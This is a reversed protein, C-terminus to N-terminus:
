DQDLFFIFKLYEIFDVIKVVMEKLLHNTKTILREIVFRLGSKHEPYDSGPIDKYIQLPRVPNDNESSTTDELVTIRVNVMESSLIKPGSFARLNVQACLQSTLSIIALLSIIM